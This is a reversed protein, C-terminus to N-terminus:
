FKGYITAEPTLNLYTEFSKANISSRCQVKEEIIGFSVEGMEHVFQQNTFITGSM